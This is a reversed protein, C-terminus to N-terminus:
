RGAWFFRGPQLRFQRWLEPPLNAADKFEAGRARMAVWLALSFSVLLNVMGILAIGSMSRVVEGLSLDFDLTTLAYGFNASSFAVHRIDLPLGFALGIAPTLGLMLGFFLNGSLGGLNHDIYAGIRTAREDGAWRRLWPLHAIRRSIDSYAALNDFYGSVLGALFLWVGAVAAFILAASGFPDIEHLLHQAKAEGILHIGSFGALLGILLALPLAAMVNGIIAALQSRLTAISLDTLRQIDRMRGQTQSITSAIAAATMAPQKTAIIFHLVHVLAFGLGYIAGNLLAQNLLALNLGSGLLKLLALLAILIGAGAAARWIGLWEARDKAIYHEGTHAANETVRLAMVGALDSFHKGLSNRQREGDLAHMMLATWHEALRMRADTDYYASMVSLLLELRTLHQDLRLLLYSLAMSTGRTLATQRARFVEERCQALLVLIHKEDESVADPETLSRRYDSVFKLLESNLAIFPSLGERIRPRIRALEPELGMASIRHSVELAADLMPYLVSKLTQEPLKKLDLAIWFRERQEASIPTMQPQGEPFLFHVCDKLENLNPVEPLFKHVLKRRLESFFGTNPLLGASAFFTTSDHTAFLSALSDRLATQYADNENLLRVLTEWVEVASADDKRSKSGLVSILSALTNLPDEDSETLHQLAIRIANEM